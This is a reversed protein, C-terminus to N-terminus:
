RRASPCLGYVSRKSWGSQRAVQRAAESRGVGAAFMEALASRVQEESWTAPPAAGAIVLTFEGRPERAHWENLADSLTGRWIEEHLKTMERCITCRRHGGLTDQAAALTALLRHPAEFLVLVARETAVESLLRHRDGARRPLFGLYLFRNTPLGSVSLAATVASAGPVPVVRIGREIAACVLEYGPDSLVPTGAESILAVDGVQLADLLRDLRTLKNHEFYSILPSKINFHDLLRRATRTDETAILACDRLVRMARVTIDELNGIPTSVLYLTGM